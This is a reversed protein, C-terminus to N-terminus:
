WIRYDLSLNEVRSTPMQKGQSLEEVKKGIYTQLESLMIEGNKNADANMTQIGELLCYTFLGNQWTASEMAYEAGGAASIVTAGTGRRLDNFMEKVAENTKQLGQAERYQVTTNTSRFTIDGDETDAIAIEEMDDKDLEGSHCTDMILLKRIAQIGDFLVELEAYTIGYKEPNRFDMNYTCYYYDLTKDLVGHGAIFFIVVDDRNAQSLFDKLGVLNERTVQENTLVKQHKTKFCPVKAFLNNVDQADKAAYELNFVSDQYNSVGIAVVFLAPEKNLTNSITITEKLSEVGASNVVSVQIKNPGSMLALDVDKIIKQAGQESVDIGNRGYVPVDNMYIHISNIAYLSDVATITVNVKGKAPPMHKLTVSPISMDDSLATEEIGMRKLRKQYASYYLDIIPQEVFGLSAMIIDPRNYMIDFQEFPYYKAEKHWGQNVHYGVYSAGKKSSTFYGEENWIVWEGNGGIFLSVVPYVVETKGIDEVRWLRITQDTSSSVLFNGDLSPALGRIDGEHGILTSKFAGKVDYVNIRGYAAGSAVLTDGFFTVVLHESGNTVDYTIKGTTVKGKRVSLSTQTDSIKLSREGMSMVPHLATDVGSVYPRIERTAFDFVHEFTSFGDNKSYTTAFALSQENMGVAQIPNGVGRMFHLETSNKKSAEVRWIAVENSMGGATVCTSNSIFAGCQILETHKMYSSMTFWEKNEEYYVKCLNKEVYDSASVVLLRTGDPSFDMKMVEHEGHEFNYILSLNSDFIYVANMSSVAIRSGDDSVALARISLGDNVLKKTSFKPKDFNNVDWVYVAGSAHTTVLVGEVAELDTIDSPIASLTTPEKSDVDWLNVEGAGDFSFFFGSNTYFELDKVCNFHGKYLRILRGTTYNYLRIDGIPETGSNPGFWGGSIIYKDDPSIAIDYIMGEHGPGIQGFIQRELYGEKSNWIKISKDYGATIVRGRSDVVLSQINARHGDPNIVLFKDKEQAIGSISILFCVTLTFYKKMNM